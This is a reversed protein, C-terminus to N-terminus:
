GAKNKEKSKEGKEPEQHKEVQEARELNQQVEEPVEISKQRKAKTIDGAISELAKAGSYTTAGVSETIAEHTPGFDVGAAKLNIGIPATLLILGAAMVAFPVTGALFIQLKKIRALQVSLWLWIGGAIIILMSWTMLFMVHSKGLFGDKYAEQYVLKQLPLIGWCSKAFEMQGILIGDIIMMLLLLIFLYSRAQKWEQYHKGWIKIMLFSGATLFLPYLM